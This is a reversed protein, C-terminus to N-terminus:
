EKAKWPSLNVYRGALIEEKPIVTWIIRRLGSASDLLPLITKIKADGAIKNDILIATTLGPNLNITDKLPIDMIIQLSDLDVLEAIQKGATIQEGLTAETNVIIGNFPATLHCDKLSLQSTELKAKAIRLEAQSKKIAFEDETIAIPALIKEKLLRKTKNLKHVASDIALQRTEVVAEAEKISILIKRDDLKAIVEGKKVSQGDEPVKTLFGAQAFSLIATRIPKVVGSLYNDNSSKQEFTNHGQSFACLPLTFINFVLIIFVFFIKKENM